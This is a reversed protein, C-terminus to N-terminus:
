VMRVPILSSDDSVTSPLPSESFPNGNLSVGESTLEGSGTYFLGPPLTTLANNDLASRPGGGGGRRTGTHFIWLKILTM